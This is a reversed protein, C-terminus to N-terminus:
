QDLECKPQKPLETVKVEGKIISRLTKRYDRWEDPVSFGEEYYRMVVANSKEHATAALRSNYEEIQEQTPEPRKVFKGQHYHDQVHRNEWEELTMERLESLPPLNPYNISDTDYWGDSLFPGEYNTQKLHAYKPM